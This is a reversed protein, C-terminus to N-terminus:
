PDSGEFPVSDTECVNEARIGEQGLAETNDEDRPNHDVDGGETQMVELVDDMLLDQVAVSDKVLDSMTETLISKPRHRIEQQENVEISISAGPNEYITPVPSQSVQQASTSRRKNLASQLTRVKWKQKQFKHFVCFILCMILASFVAGFGCSIAVLSIKDLSFMGTGNEQQADLLGNPNSANTPTLAASLNHQMTGSEFRILHPEDAIGQQQSELQDPLLSLRTMGNHGTVVRISADNSTSHQPMMQTSAFQAQQQLVTPDMQPPVEVSCLLLTCDFWYFM